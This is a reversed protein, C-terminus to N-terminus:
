LPKSKKEIDEVLESYLRKFVSGAAGPKKINNIESLPRLYSAGSTLIIEEANDLDTAKALAEKVKNKTMLYGRMTGALIGLELPSTFLQGDKAWFINATLAEAVFGDPTLLIGEVGPKLGATKRLNTRAKIYDVSKIRFGFKEFYNPKELTIKDLIVAQYSKPSFPPIYRIQIIIDTPTATFRIFADKDKPLNRSLDKIWSCYKQRDDDWNIGLAQLSKKLRDFHEDLLFVRGGHLRFSEFAGHSDLLLKDAAPGDKVIGNISINEIKM